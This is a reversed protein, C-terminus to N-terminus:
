LNGPSYIKYLGLEFPGIRVCQHQTNTATNIGAGQAPKRLQRHILQIVLSIIVILKKGDPQGLIHLRVLCIRM